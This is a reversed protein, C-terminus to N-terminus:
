RTAGKASRMFEKFRLRDMKDLLEPLSAKRERADDRFAAAMARLADDVAADAALQKRLTRVAKEGNRADLFEGLEDQFARLLKVARRAPKGVGVSYAELCYRLRKGAIRLRHCRTVTLKARARRLAQRFESWVRKLLPGAGREWPAQARRPWEGPPAALLADLSQVMGAGLEGGLQRSAAASLDDRRQRLMALVPSMSDALGPAPEASFAAISATLVDLDRLANLQHMVARAADAAQRARKPLLPRWLRLVSRLRRAAVRMDHVASPTAAVSVAEVRERIVPVLERLVGDVFERATAARGVAVPRPRPRSMAPNNLGRRPAVPM